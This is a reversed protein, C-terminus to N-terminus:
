FKRLLGTVKGILRFNESIPLDPYAPNLPHLFYKGKKQIFQKVTAEGEVMAAVLDSFSATEQPHIVVFDKDHLEPEMSDGKVKLLFAKPNDCALFSPVSIKEENTEIAEEPIGAVIRGAIPLPIVDQFPSPFHRLKIARSKGSDVELLGKEKFIDIMRKIATPNVIGLKQALDRMTPPYGNEEIFERLAQFVEVQRQSLSEM